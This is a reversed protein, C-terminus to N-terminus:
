VQGQQRTARAPAVGTFGERRKGGTIGLHRLQPACRPRRSRPRRGGASGLGGEQPRFLWGRPLGAPDRDRRGWGEPCCGQVRCARPHVKPGGHGPQEGAKLSSRGWLGQRRPGVGMLPEMRGPPGPSGSRIRRPLPKAGLATLAEEGGGLAGEGTSARAQARGEYRAPQAAAWARQAKGSLEAKGHTGDACGGQGQCQGEHMLPWPPAPGSASLWAPPLPRPEVKSCGSHASVQALTHAQSSAPASGRAAKGM